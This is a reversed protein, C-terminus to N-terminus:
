KQSLVIEACLLLCRTMSSLVSYASFYVYVRSKDYLWFVFASGEIWFCCFSRKDQVLSGLQM